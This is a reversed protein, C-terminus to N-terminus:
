LEAAGLRHKHISISIFCVASEIHILETDLPLFSLPPFDFSFCSWDPGLSDVIHIASYNM